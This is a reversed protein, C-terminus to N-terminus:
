DDGYLNDAANELSTEDPTPSPASKVAPEAENVVPTPQTAPATNKRTPGIAIPAQSVTKPVTSKVRVEPAADKANADFILTNETALATCSIFLSLTAAGFPQWKYQWAKM